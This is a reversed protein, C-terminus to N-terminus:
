CLACHPLGLDCRFVNGRHLATRSEQKAALIENNRGGSNSWLHAPPANAIFHNAVAPLCFSPLYIILDTQVLGCKKAWTQIREATRAPSSGSSGAPNPKSKRSARQSGSIPHELDAYVLCDRAGAKRQTPDCFRRLCGRPVMACSSRSRARKSSRWRSPGRGPDAHPLRRKSDRGWNAVM